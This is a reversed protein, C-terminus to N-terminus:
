KAFSHICDVVNHINNGIRHGGKNFVFNSKPMYYSMAKKYDIVEDDISLIVQAPLDKKSEEKIKKYIERIEEDIEYKVLTNEPETSPNYVVLHSNTAEAVRTAYWGGLSSGVIVVKENKPVISILNKLSERPKLPDYTPTILDPFFERLSQASKSQPSSGYGHIYIIKM